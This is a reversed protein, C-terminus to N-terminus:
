DFLAIFRDLDDSQSLKLKKKLRYRATKVSGSSINLVTAIELNNLNLKILAALRVDYTTLSPFQEKLTNFFSPNLFDFYHKFLKWDKESNINQVIAKKLHTIRRLQQHDMTAANQTVLELENQLEILLKNKHMMNLAHTALQNSKFENEKLLQKARLREKERIVMETKREQRRKMIFFVTILIFIVLLLFLLILLLRNKEKQTKENKKLLKIQNEKYATEYKTKLELIKNQIEIGAISDKEVIYMKYYHLASNFDQKQLYYNYLALHSKNKIYYNNISDSLRLAEQLYRRAKQYDGVEMYANGIDLSINAIDALYQKKEFLKIAAELKELGQKYDHKAILANGINQYVGAMEFENNIQQYVRLSKKYYYVASDYEKRNYMVVGLNIYIAASNVSSTDEGLLKEAKYYYTMAMSDNAIDMYLNAINNFSELQMVTDNLAYYINLAKYFSDLAPQYDGKKKLINGTNSIACAYNYQDNRQLHIALAKKAFLLAKEYNGKSKNVISIMNCAFGKKSLNGPPLLDLDLVAHCYAECSDTMGLYYCATAATLLASALDNNNGSNRAFIIAKQGYLLAKEPKSAIYKRSSDILSTFQKDQELAAEKKVAPHCGSFLQVAFIVVLLFLRGNNGNM